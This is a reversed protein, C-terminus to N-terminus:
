LAIRMGLMLDHRVYSPDDEPGGGPPMYRYNTNVMSLRYNLTAAIWNRFSYHIGAVVAVIIDDRTSPGNVITIGDYHRFHIEPQFLVHFPVFLQQVSLQVIHDRYYNANISDQYQWSYQLTARGLPSYRYGLAAGILPGSFSPGSSYFGNTYGAAVNFTTNVTFLTSLGAMAALPYSTVKMSSSGLPSVIGQSIDVYLQTKPLWQWTPHIGFLNFMRDAFRQESREFIDVVNNYYVYGGFSRDSPHYLAKLGLRNIDRNTNSDTEYNTARILREFDEDIGPSWRGMPNVLAHLSAGIGLGGTGQAADNNSLIVDYSTRLDIRYQLSGKNEPIPEDGGLRQPGLSGTGIQALLRLVGAANPDSQEYFVNSVVGTELGFVPHLVTGEGIKVGPGEVTSIPAVAQAPDFASVSINNPDLGQAEASSALGFVLASATLFRFM